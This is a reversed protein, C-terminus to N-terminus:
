LVQPLSSPLITKPAVPKPAVPKSSSSPIQQGAANFWVEVRWSGKGPQFLSVFVRTTGNEWRQVGLYEGSGTNHEESYNASNAAWQALM